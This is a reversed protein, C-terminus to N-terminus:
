SCLFIKLNASSRQSLPLSFPFEDWSDFILLVQHGHRQQITSVVKSKMSTEGPFLDDLTEASHITPDRLQVFLVIEFEKFLQRAEWKQCLHWALTSKGAGPAGEIIIFKRPKDHYRNACLSNSVQELTVENTHSMVENVDGKLLLRVIEENPGYQLVRQEVMALNFVKRTPPPPWQLSFSPIETCYKM